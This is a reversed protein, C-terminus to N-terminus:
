WASQRGRSLYQIALKVWGAGRLWVIGPRANESNMPIPPRALQESLPSALIVCQRTREAPIAARPRWGLNGVVITQHWTM